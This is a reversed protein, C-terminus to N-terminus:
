LDLAEEDVPQAVRDRDAARLAAAREVHRDLVASGLVRAAVGLRHRVLEDRLRLRLLELGDAAGLLEADLLLLDVAALDLLALRSEVGELARLEAARERAARHALAVQRPRARQEILGIQVDLLLLLPDARDPLLGSRRDLAEVRRPQGIRLRVGGGGRDF